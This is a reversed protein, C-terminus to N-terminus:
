ESSLCTSSAQVIVVLALVSARFMCKRSPRDDAEALGGANVETSRLFGEHLFCCINAYGVVFITGIKPLWGTRVWIHLYVGLYCPSNQRRGNEIFLVACYHSHFSAQCIFKLHNSTSIKKPPLSAVVAILQDTSAFSLAPTACM